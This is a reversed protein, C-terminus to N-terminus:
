RMVFAGTAFLSLMPLCSLDQATALVSWSCPLFLLMSGIPKDMRALHYYPMMACKVEKWKTEANTQLTSKHFRKFSNARPIRLLLRNMAFKKGSTINCRRLFYVVFAPGMAGCILNGIDSPKM